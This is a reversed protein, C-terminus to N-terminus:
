RRSFEDFTLGQFRKLEEMEHFNKMHAERLCPNQEPLQEHLLLKIEDFNNMVQLVTILNEENLNSLEM